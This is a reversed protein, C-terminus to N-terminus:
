RNWSGLTAERVASALAMRTKEDPITRIAPCLAFSECLCPHLTLRDPRLAGPKAVTAM